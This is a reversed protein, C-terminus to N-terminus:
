PKALSWYNERRDVFHEKQRDVNLEVQWLGPRDVVAEGHYWGPKEPVPVLNMNQRQNGRAHHWLQVGVRAETLPQAKGDQLQVMLLRKGNSDLQQGPVMTWTWGLQHSVQRAALVNDYEVAQQHYNPVVAHAPDSNALFIAMGGIMVQIALLGVILGVWTWKAFLERDEISTEPILTGPSSM